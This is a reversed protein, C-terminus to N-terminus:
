RTEQSVRMLWEYTGRVGEELPRPRYGLERIAKECSFAWEAMFVRVWPPTIQPYVGFWQARKLQFLAFSMAAPWRVTFKFHRKGSVKDITELLQRLSANEGGLIYKEGVRGLKMALLHGEVVDDVHVYNGVNRGRNLVAPARGRDYERFLISLSNGETLQGPGYVRTPNVIVINLGVDVYKQAEREAAIKSSEYDTFCHPITRPMTEDGVVGPPSPGLTMITSTWVVREVQAQKAADFVNCTGQVNIDHYTDYTRAWNKAYGALHFVHTCGEMGRALAAKDALDGRIIHLRGENEAPAVPQEGPEVPLTERRSLAHVTHGRRLLERALKSGIFGTAGTVFVTTPRDFTSRGNANASSSEIM